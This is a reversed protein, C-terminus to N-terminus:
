LMKRSESEADVKAVGIDDLLHSDLGNLDRRQRRHALWERAMLFAKALLWLPRSSPAESQPAGIRMEGLPSRVTIISNCSYDPGACPM